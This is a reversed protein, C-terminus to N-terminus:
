LKHIYANFGLGVLFNDLNIKDEESICDLEKIEPYHHVGLLEPYEEIKKLNIIKDIDWCLHRFSNNKSLEKQFEMLEARSSAEFISNDIDAVYQKFKKYTDIIEQLDRKM